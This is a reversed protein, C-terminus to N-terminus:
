GGGGLVGLSGRGFTRVMCTVGLINAVEHTAMYTPDHIPACAAFLTTKTLSDIYKVWKISQRCM